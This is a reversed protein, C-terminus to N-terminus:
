LSCSRYRSRDHHDSSACGTALFIWACTSYFLPVVPQHLAAIGCLFHTCVGRRQHGNSEYETPAVTLHVEDGVHKQSSSISYFRPLLPMLLDVFEQPTFSCEQNALLFDWVEHKAIFAKLEERKSEEQLKELEAKKARHSQRAVVARFLKPSVTTLNAKACLFDAFGFKEGSPHIQIIAEGSARVAQLTKDVLTSDHRPYIGISDGPQYILDSGKLDLVLHQTKKGSGAKSLM